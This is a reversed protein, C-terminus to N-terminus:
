SPLPLPISKDPGGFFCYDCLRARNAVLEDQPFPLADLYNPDADNSYRAAFRCRHALDTRHIASRRTENWYGTVKTQGGPVKQKIPCFVDHVWHVYPHDRDLRDSMQLRLTRSALVENQSGLQRYLVCSISFEKGEALDELPQLNLRRAVAEAAPRDVSRVVDNTDIRRVQWSIRALPDSPHFLHAAVDISYVLAAAGLEAADISTPGTLRSEQGDAIAMTTRVRLGDGDIKIMTITFSVLPATTGPLTIQQVSSLQTEDETATLAATAKATATAVLSGVIIGIVPAFTPVVVGVLYAWWPIDPDLEFHFADIWVDDHGHEVIQTHQTGFEDDFHEVEDPKGLTPRAHLTFDGGAGDKTAHGEVLYFDQKIALSLDDVTVGEGTEDMRAQIATKTFTALLPVLGPHAWIAISSKGLMSEIANVNGTTAIGPALLDIGVAIAGDLVRIDVGTVVPPGDIRDLLPLAFPPTITPIAAVASGLMSTLWARAAPSAILAQVDAPLAGGGIPDVSVADVSIAEAAVRVELGGREVFGAVQASLTTRILVQRDFQLDNGEGAIRGALSIELSVATPRQASFTVRPADVFLDFSLIVTGTGVPSPISRTGSQLVPVLGSGHYIRLALQAASQRAQVLVGYGAHAM